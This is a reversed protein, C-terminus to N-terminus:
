PTSGEPSTTTLTITADRPDAQIAYHYIFIPKGDADLGDTTWWEEVHIADGVRGGGREVVAKLETFRIPDEDEYVLYRKTM